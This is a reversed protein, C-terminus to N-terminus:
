QGLLHLTHDLLPPGGPDGHGPVIIRATPYARKVARVAEPWSKLDADATNGITQSERSKILCGGFLLQDAPVYVTLNDPSHGPGFFGVELVVGAAQFRGLGLPTFPFDAPLGPLLARTQASLYVPIGHRALTRLGGARDQHFHTVLCAVVPKGKRRADDLIEDTERDDWATDILISGHDGEILLGNSPTKTGEYLQYSRHVVSHPSVRLFEVPFSQAGVSTGLAWLGVLLGWKNM